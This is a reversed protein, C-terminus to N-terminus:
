INILFVKLTQILFNREEKIREYEKKYRKYERIKNKLYSNEESLRNVKERSHDYKRKIVKYNDFVDSFPTNDDITKTKRTCSSNSRYKYEKRKALFYNIIRKLHSTSDSIKKICNDFHLSSIKLNDIRYNIDKDYNKSFTSYSGKDKSKYNSNLYKDNKEHYKSM